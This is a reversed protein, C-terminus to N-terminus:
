DNTKYHERIKKYYETLNGSNKGKRYLDRTKKENSNAHKYLDVTDDWNDTMDGYVSKAKKPNADADKYLRKTAGPHDTMADYSNKAKQPNNIADRGVHKVAGTHTQSQKKIQKAASPNNSKLYKAAKKNRGEAHAPNTILTSVIMVGILAISLSVIFNRPM